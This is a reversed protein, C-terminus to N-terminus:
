LWGQRFRAHPALQSTTAVSSRAPARMGIPQVNVSGARDSSLRTSAILVSSAEPHTNPVAVCIRRSSSDPSGTVFSNMARLTFPRHIEPTSPLLWNPANSSAAGGRQERGVLPFIQRRSACRKCWSRSCQRLRAKRQRPLRIGPPIPRATCVAPGSLAPRIVGEIERAAVAAHQRRSVAIKVLAALAVAAGDHLHNVVIAIRRSIVVHDPQRRQVATRPDALPSDRCRRFRGATRRVFSPAVHESKM